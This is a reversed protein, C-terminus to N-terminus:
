GQLYVLLESNEACFILFLLITFARLFPWAISEFNIISDAVFLGMFGFVTGSAGVLLQSNEFIASVFSAGFGAFLLAHADLHM